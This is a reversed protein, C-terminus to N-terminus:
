FLDICAAGCIGRRHPTSSSPSRAPRFSSSPRRMSTMALHAQLRASGDRDPRSSQSSISSGSAADVSMRSASSAGVPRPRAPASSGPFIEASAQHLAFQDLRRLMPVTRDSRHNEPGRLGFLMRGVIRGDTMEYGAGSAQAIYQQAAAPRAGGALSITNASSLKRVIEHAVRLHHQRANLWYWKIEGRPPRSSRGQRRGCWRRRWPGHQFSSCSSVDLAQPHKAVFGTRLV